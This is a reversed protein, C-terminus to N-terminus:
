KKAEGGKKARIAAKRRLHCTKWRIGEVCGSGFFAAIYKAISTRIRCTKHM